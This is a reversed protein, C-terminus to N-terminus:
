DLYLLEEIESLDNKEKILSKYLKEFSDKDSNLSPYYTYYEIQGKPFGLVFDVSKLRPTCVHALYMPYGKYNFSIGSDGHLHNVINNSFSLDTINNLDNSMQNILKVIKNNIM